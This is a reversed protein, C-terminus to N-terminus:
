TGRSLVSMKLNPQRTESNWEILSPIIGNFPLGGDARITIHWRLPRRSMREISGPPVPSAATAARIDNTRNVWTALRPASNARKRDLKFWHPRKPDQAAPNSSIVELYLADGLRLLCNHTGM